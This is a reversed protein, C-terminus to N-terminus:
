IPGLRCHHKQCRSKQWTDSTGGDKVGGQLSSTLPGFSRITWDPQNSIMSGFTFALLQGNPSVHKAVKTNRTKFGSTSTYINAGNTRVRNLEGISDHGTTESFLRHYYNCTNATKEGWEGKGVFGKDTLECPLYLHLRNDEIIGSLTLTVVVHDAWAAGGSILHLEQPDIQLHSLLKTAADVMRPYHEGTLLPRDEKRGATGIIALNM